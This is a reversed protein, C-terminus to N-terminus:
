MVKKLEFVAVSGDTAGTACICKGFCERMSGTFGISVCTLGPGDKGNVHTWLTPKGDFSAGDRIPLLRLGGDDCGALLIGEAYELCQVAVGVSVASVRSLGGNSLVFSALKGTSFGIFLTINGREASWKV